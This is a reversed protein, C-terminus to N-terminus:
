GTESTQPQKTLRPKGKPHEWLYDFLGRYKEAVELGTTMEANLGGRESLLVVTNGIITVDPCKELVGLPLYKSERMLLGDSGSYASGFSSTYIFKSPVQADIRASNGSSFEYEPFNRELMDMNSVGYVLEPLNPQKFLEGILLRIQGAGKAVRVRHQAM